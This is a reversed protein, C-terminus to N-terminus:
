YSGCIYVVGQEDVENITDSIFEFETQEVDINKVDILSYLKVEKDIDKLDMLEKILERATM